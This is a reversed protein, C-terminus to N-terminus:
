GQSHRKAIGQGQDECHCCPFNKPFVYTACPGNQPHEQCDQANGDAYNGRPVFMWSTELSSPFVMRHFVMRIKVVASVERLLQLVPYVVGSEMNSLAYSKM